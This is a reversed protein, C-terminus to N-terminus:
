QAKGGDLVGLRHLIREVLKKLRGERPDFPRLQVHLYAAVDLAEQQMLSREKGAPMNAWIFGAAKQINNM